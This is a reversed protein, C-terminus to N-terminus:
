RSFAAQLFQVRQTHMHSSDKGFWILHGGAHIDLLRSQELLLAAENGAGTGHFYLTPIGTGVDLYEVVGQSTEHRQQNAVLVFPMSIGLATQSWL